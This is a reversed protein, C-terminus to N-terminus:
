SVTGLVVTKLICLEKIYNEVGSLDIRSRQKVDTESEPVVRRSTPPLVLEGPEVQEHVGGHADHLRLLLAVVLGRGHAPLQGLGGEGLGVEPCARVATTDLGSSAPLTHDVRPTPASTNLKRRYEITWYLAM